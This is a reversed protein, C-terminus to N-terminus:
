EHTIYVMIKILLNTFIPAKKEKFWSIQWTLLSVQQTLYTAGIEVFWENYLVRFQLNAKISILVILHWNLTSAHPHCVLKSPSCSSIKPWQILILKSSNFSTWILFKNLNLMVFVLFSTWISYQFCKFFFHTIERKGVEEGIRGM